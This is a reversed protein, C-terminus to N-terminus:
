SCINTWPLAPIGSSFVAALVQPQFLSGLTRVCLSSGLIHLLLSTQQAGSWAGVTVPEDSAFVHVYLESLSVIRSAISLTTLEKSLLIWERSLCRDNIYAFAKCEVMYTTVATLSINGIYM